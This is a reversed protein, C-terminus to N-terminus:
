EKLHDTYRHPPSYRDSDLRYSFLVPAGLGDPDYGSWVFECPTGMLVTDKYGPNYTLPDGPDEPGHLRYLSDVVGGQTEAEFFVRAPSPDLMGENDVARVYFTHFMTETDGEIVAKFASDTKTTWTWISNAAGPGPVTDDWAFYYAVIYGDPDTGEWYLHVRYNAQSFPGPASALRTNPALNTELELESGKRCGTLLLVSLLSIGLLVVALAGAALRRLSTM